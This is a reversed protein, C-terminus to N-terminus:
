KVKKSMIVNVWRLDRGNLNDGTIWINMEAMNIEERVEKFLDHVKHETACTFHRGKEDDYDSEGYKFCTYLIGGPKLAKIVKQITEKLQNRPLHHLSSCAWIGEFTNDYDLDQFMLCRVLLGTYESAIRCLEPSGDLATVTYGMEHFTKSDRGSGCGLDLIKGKAPIRRVFVDLVNSMDTDATQRAYEEANDIYYQLTKNQNNM